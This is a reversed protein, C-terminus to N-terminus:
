RTRWTPQSRLPRVLSHGVLHVRIGHYKEGIQTIASRM